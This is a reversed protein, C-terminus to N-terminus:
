SESGREDEDRIPGITTSTGDPRELRIDGTSSLLILLAGSDLQLEMRMGADERFEEKDHQTLGVIRCGVVEGLLERVTAPYLPDPPPDEAM